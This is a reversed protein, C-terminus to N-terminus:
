FLRRSYSQVCYRCQRLPYHVIIARKAAFSLVTDPALCRLKSVVPAFNKAPMRDSGIKKPTPRKSGARPQASAPAVAGFAVGAAGTSM